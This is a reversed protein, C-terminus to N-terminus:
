RNFNQRSAIAILENRMSPSADQLARDFQRAARRSRIKQKINSM